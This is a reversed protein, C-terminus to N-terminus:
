GYFKSLLNLYYYLSSQYRKLLEDRKFLARAVTKYIYTTELFQQKPVFNYQRTFNKTHGLVAAELLLLKQFYTTHDMACSVLM